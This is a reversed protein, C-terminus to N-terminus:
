FLRAPLAFEELSVDKGDISVYRGQTTSKRASAFALRLNEVGRPSDGSLMYVLLDAALAMGTTVIKDRAQDYFVGWWPNSKEILRFGGRDDYRGLIEFIEELSMAGEVRHVLEGVARALAQQGLPRFLMHAEGTKDETPFRRMEAVNRPERFPTSARVDHPLYTWPEISQMSPLTAIADWFEVFKATAERVLPESPPQAMADRQKKAYWQKFDGNNKLYEEAMTTLTAMTTLVTSKAAITNNTPSIRRPRGLGVTEEDEADKIDRKLDKLFDCETYAGTATRAFGDDRDMAAIEGKSVAKSKTNFAKFISALRRVAEDWTEGKCVAPVLKVGVREDRFKYVDQETIGQDEVESLWTSLRVYGGKGPVPEGKSKRRQLGGTKLMELAAKIGILRHQGDLAYIHHSSDVGEGGLHLLVKDIKGDIEEVECSDQTARGDRWQPADPNDVWPASVVLVLDPLNHFPHLLLYKAIVEARSFDVPRQRILAINESTIEMDILPAEGDDEDEYFEADKGFMDLEWALNVNAGVWETTTQFTYFPKRFPMEGIAVEITGKQGTLNRYIQGYIEREEAEQRRRDAILRELATNM